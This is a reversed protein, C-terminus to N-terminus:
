AQSQTIPSRLPSPSTSTMAVPYRALWTTHYLRLTDNGDSTLMSTPQSPSVSHDWPPCNEMWSYVGSKLSSSWCCTSPRVGSSGSLYPTRITSTGTFSVRSPEVPRM